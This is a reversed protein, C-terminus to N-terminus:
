RTKPSAEAGNLTPPKEGTAAKAVSDTRRNAEDVLQKAGKLADEGAQRGRAEAEKAQARARTVAEEARSFAADIQSSAARESATQGAAALLVAALVGSLM